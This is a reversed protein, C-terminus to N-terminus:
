ILLSLIKAMLIKGPAKACYDGAFIICPFSFPVMYCTYYSLQYIEKGYVRVYLDLFIIKFINVKFGETRITDRLVHHMRSGNITSGSKRQQIQWRIKWVDLPAIFFRSITGAIAGAIAQDIFSKNGSLNSEIAM